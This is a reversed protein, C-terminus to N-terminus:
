SPPRTRPPGLPRPLALFPTRALRDPPGRRCCRVLHLRRPGVVPRGLRPRPLRIPLRPRALVRPGLPVALTNSPGGPRALEWSNRPLRREAWSPKGVPPASNHVEMAFGVVRVSCCLPHLAEVPRLGHRPKRRPAPRDNPPQPAKAAGPRLWPPRPARPPSPRVADAGNRCADRAFFRSFSGGHNPATHALVAICAKQGM